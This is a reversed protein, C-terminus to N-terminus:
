PPKEPTARPLPESTANVDPQSGTQADVFEDASERGRDTAAQLVEEPAPATQADMSSPASAAETAPAGVSTTESTSADITPLAEVVM